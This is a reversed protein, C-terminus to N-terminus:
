VQGSSSTISVKALQEASRLRVFARSPSQTQSAECGAWSQAARLGMERVPSSGSTAVTNKRSGQTGDGMNRTETYLYIYSLWYVTKDICTHAHIYTALSRSCLLAQLPTHKGVSSVLIVYNAGLRCRMREVQSTVHLCGCRDLGHDRAKVCECVCVCFFFFFACVM